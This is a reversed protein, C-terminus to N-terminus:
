CLVMITHIIMIHYCAAVVAKIESKLKVSETKLDKEKTELSKVKEQLETIVKDKEELQSKYRDLPLINENYQKEFAPGFEAMPPSPHPQVPDTTEENHSVPM